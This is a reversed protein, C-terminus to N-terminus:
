LSEILASKSIFVNEEGFWCYPTSNSEEFCYNYHSFNGGRRTPYYQDIPTYVALIGLVVVEEAKGNKLIFVKDNIHFKPSPNM